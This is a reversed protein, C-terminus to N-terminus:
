IICEAEYFINEIQTKTDLAPNEQQQVDEGWEDGAENEYSM